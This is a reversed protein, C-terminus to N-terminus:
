RAATQLFGRPSRPLRASLWAAAAGRGHRLRPSAISPRSATIEDEDSLACTAFLTVRSDIMSAAAVVIVGDVVGLELWEAAVM